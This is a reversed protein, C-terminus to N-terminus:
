SSEGSGRFSGSEPYRFEFEFDLLCFVFSLVCFM